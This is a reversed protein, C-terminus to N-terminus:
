RSASRNGNAMAVLQGEDNISAVSEDTVQWDRDSGSLAVTQGIVSTGQVGFQATEGFNMILEDLSIAPPVVAISTLNETRVEVAEEFPRAEGDCGVLVMAVLTAIVYNSIRM